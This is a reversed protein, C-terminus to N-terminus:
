AALRRRVALLLSVGVAGLLAAQPAPIPISLAVNDVGMTSEFENDLDNAIRFRLIYAGAGLSQSVTTWGDHWLDGVMAVDRYWLTAWTLGGDSSLEAFANDNYPLYDGADFFVDFSLVSSGVAVFSQWMETYSGPGDTQLLAFYNGHTPSWLGGEGGVFGASGLVSLAGGPPVYSSWATDDGSEFSGNVISALAPAAFFVVAFAFVLKASM